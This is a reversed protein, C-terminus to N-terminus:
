STAKKPLSPPPIEIFDFSPSFGDEGSPTDGQEYGDEPLDSKDQDTLINNSRRGNLQEGEDMKDLAVQAKEALEISWPMKYARPDGVPIGAEDTTRLWFFIAGPEKSRKDPDEITIWLVRFSEPMSAQTAWGLSDRYGFWTFIYFASVLVVMSAKVLHSLKTGVCLALLLAAVLAYALSLTISIDM